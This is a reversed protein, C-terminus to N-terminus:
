RAIFVRFYNNRNWEMRKRRPQLKGLNYCRSRPEGLALQYILDSKDHEKANANADDLIIPLGNRGECMALISNKTANFTRVIGYNSTVPSGYLSASLDAITSKGTSSAGTVNVVLTGIERKTNVLSSVISSLGMALALQTEKYPLVEDKIFKMQGDFSGAKFSMPTGVYEVMTGNLNKSSLIFEPKAFNYHWGLHTTTKTEYGGQNLMERFEEMLYSQVYSKFQSNILVNHKTLAFQLADSDGLEENSIM